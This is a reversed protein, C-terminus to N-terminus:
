CLPTGMHANSKQSTLQVMQCLAALTYRLSLDPTNIPPTFLLLRRLSQAELQSCVNDRELFPRKSRM